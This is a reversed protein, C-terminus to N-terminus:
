CCHHCHSVRCLTVFVSLNIIHFVLCMHLVAIVVSCPSCILFLVPHNSFMNMSVMGTSCPLNNLAHAPSEHICITCLSLCPPFLLLVYFLSLCNSLLWQVIVWCLWSVLKLCVTHSSLSFQMVLLSVGVFIVTFPLLLGVSPSLLVLDSHVLKLGNLSPNVCSLCFYLPGWKITWNLMGLTFLM